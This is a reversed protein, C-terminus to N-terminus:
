FVARWKATIWSFKFAISKRHLCASIDILSFFENPCVGVSRAISIGLFFTAIFITSNKLLFLVPYDIDPPILPFFEMNIVVGM